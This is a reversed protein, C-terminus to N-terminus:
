ARNIDATLHEISAGILKHMYDNAINRQKKLEDLESYYYSRGNIRVIEEGRNGFWRMLVDELGVGRVGGSCLVFTVMCVLVAGAMWYKQHKRFSQFPNFAM